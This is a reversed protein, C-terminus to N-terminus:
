SLGSLLPEDSREQKRKDADTLAPGWDIIRLTDYAEPKGMVYLLSGEGRMVVQKFEHPNFTTNYARLRVHDEDKALLLDMRPVLRPIMRESWVIGYGNLFVREGIHSLADDWYEYPTVKKSGWRMRFFPHDVMRELFLDYAQRSSLPTVM